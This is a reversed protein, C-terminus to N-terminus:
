GGPEERTDPVAPDSGNGDNGSEEVVIDTDIFEIVGPPPVVQSEIHCDYGSEPANGDEPLLVLLLVV